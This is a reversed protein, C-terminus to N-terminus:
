VPLVKAILTKKSLLGPNDVGNLNCKLEALGSGRNPQSFLFLTLKRLIVVDAGLHAAIM